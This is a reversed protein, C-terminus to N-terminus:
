RTCEILTFSFRDLSYGPKGTYENFRNSEDPVLTVQLPNPNESESNVPIGNAVPVRRPVGRTHYM